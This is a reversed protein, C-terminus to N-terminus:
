ELVGLSRGELSPKSKKLVVRRRRMKRRRRWRGRRSWTLIEREGIIM